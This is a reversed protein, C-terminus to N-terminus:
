ELGPSDIGDAHEMRRQQGCALAEALALEEHRRRRLGHRRADAHALAVRGEDGPDVLHDALVIAAALRLLPVLLREDIETEIGLGHRRDHLFHDLLGKPWALMYSHFKAGTKALAPRSASPSTLVSLIVAM